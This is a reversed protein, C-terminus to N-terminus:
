YGENQVLNPNSSVASAPIPFLIRHADTNTKMAWTTSWKGLRIQDNRRWGEIYLERGRENLVEDLTAEKSSVGRATRLADFHTQATGTGGRLIAEVKMLLADAYRFLVVGNRYEGDNEPHYKIVRIGTRENNGALGPFEKTFFLPNGARDNIPNGDKDYQQGFLFGYGIGNQTTPPDPAKPVFGRREEQDNGPENSSASGEFLAYFDATTSFGNWGGAQGPSLQNYHLGNWIKNCVCTNLWFITEPDDNSGKNKFMEFYEGPAALDYGDAAIADVSEIVKNMDAAQPNANLYVHKNLYLKALLFHAAAKSARVQANAESGAMITPLNPLASTLDNIMFDFAEQGSFVAPDQSPPDHVDRFPIQRWLDYVYFMNLARLFKGEAAQVLSPNSETALLQNLRFINSNLINWTNLIYPHTADWDHTHLVRWVGNDGWDTGRTPVLLEDSTVEYLAYLNAQDGFANLNQYGTALQATPNVGAFTGQETEIVISDKEKVELDTCAPLVMAVVILLSVYNFLFNKRM